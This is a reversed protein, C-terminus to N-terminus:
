DKVKGYKGGGGSKVEINGERSKIITKAINDNVIARLDEYKVNHIINM